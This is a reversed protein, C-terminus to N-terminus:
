EDKELDMLDEELLRAEKKKKNNRFVIALVAAAAALVAAVIGGIMGVSMGQEPEEYDEMPMDMMPDDMYNMETVFITIDKEVRTQNGADDEYTIVAKVIGDDMTGAVGSVMADVNGTAGPALNGIFTDGGEVSQAEFKVQMNYLTTKGTNYIQFMVNSQEGVMIDAPMVEPTSSDFRSEQKVPVSVKAEDSLDAKLETDYKMKVTVVYPKQSLDAKAQMEIQLDHSSGASMNEVYIASSGSTPLFAAYSNTVGGNANETGGEVAQLDFLVNSVATDSSTNKVHITLLFTDGAYVEAPETEFGTVIIRPQSVNTLDSMGIRGSGAKGQCFVYVTLEAPKECRIGDKSYWVRFNLPYYGTLVDERVTFTYTVERRNFFAEDYLRTACGPIEGFNRTNGTSDPVFPWVSVDNSIVPEVLLDTLWEEGMNIIPLVINVKEGYSVTPTVWNDALSIFETTATSQGAKSVASDMLGKTKNVHDWMQSETMKESNAIYYIGSYLIDGLEDVIYKEPNERQILTEMYFKMEAHADARQDDNIYEAADMTNASVALVAAPYQCMLMGAACVTMVTRALWKNWKRSM